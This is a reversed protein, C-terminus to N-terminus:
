SITVGYHGVINWKSGDYCLTVSEGASDWLIQNSVNADDITANNGHASMTIIKIQGAIGAALSLITQGSSTDLISVLTSTSLANEGGAGTITEPTGTLAGNVTLGTLTGVSTIQTQAADVSLTDGTLTLGTGAALNTDDGIDITDLTIEQGVMTIYDLGAAITVDTSNDTGAVDVNLSTRVTAGSEWALAGAATGVLFESDAANAGLTALDDLVDAQGQKASWTVASSIYADAIATGQWVGSTITGVTALNSLADIESEFYTNLDTMAVQKMTGADNLVVRDADAVTTATAATDGDLINLEAATATVGDLINLEAATATV